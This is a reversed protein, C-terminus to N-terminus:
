PNGYKEMAQWLEPHSRAYEALPVGQAAAEWAQRLSTAGAAPGAPHAMVGGGALYM